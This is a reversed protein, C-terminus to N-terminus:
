DAGVQWVRDLAADRASHVPSLAVGPGSLELMAQEGNKVLSAEHQDILSVVWGHYDEGIHLHLVDQTSTDLFIAMRYGDDTGIITGVLTIAPREPEPPKAPQRVAVPAVYTPAPPPRRSPSFIPRERTSSLRELPLRWLPNLAPKAGAAVQRPAAANEQETGQGAVSVGMPGGASNGPADNDAAFTSALSHATMRAMGGADDRLLVQADAPTADFKAIGCLLVIGTLLSLARRPKM